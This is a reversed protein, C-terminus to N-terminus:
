QLNKVLIFLVSSIHPLNPGQHAFNWLLKNLSRPRRKLIAACINKHCKGEYVSTSFYTKKPHTNKIIHRFKHCEGQGLTYLVKSSVMVSGKVLLHRFGCRDIREALSMIVKKLLRSISRSIIICNILKVYKAAPNLCENNNGTKHQVQPFLVM